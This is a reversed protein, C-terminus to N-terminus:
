GTEIQWRSSFYAKRAMLDLARVLEAKDMNDPDRDFQETITMMAPNDLPNIIKLQLMSFIMTIAIVATFIGAILSISKFTKIDKETFKM